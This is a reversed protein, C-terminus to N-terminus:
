LQISVGQRGMRVVMLLPLSKLVLDLPIMQLDLRLVFSLAYSASVLTLQVLFVIARRYREVAAVLKDIRSHEVWEHHRKNSPSPHHTAGIRM